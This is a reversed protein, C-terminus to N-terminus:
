SAPDPHVWPRRYERKLLAAAAPNNRIETRAADWEVKTGSEYAIMGLQVAATSTAADILTCGPQNKRRVAELFEGVHRTQQDDAKITAPTETRSAGKATPIVVMRSDSVFVTERECYFFIGNSTEPSWEASGWLRHRWVVPCQEFEFAATLTDPTTIRGKLQYIGGSAQISRPAGEGLITRTADILHIGWDVLHGNGYQKELRWTRHAINPSYPLRPAPGCWFDWDLTAPPAQPTNDLVQAQYHIQVDAQVVRGPKGSRLYDAANRFADSQRRQFGAQVTTGASKWARIMAGAERIDYAVPKELYVALGRRCAEIFPLAHWHPPTAIIVGDLGPMSLCERYDKFTRPRSGQLKEVEAACQELHSSDVDCLAACEVGGARYAANLDVMGYWGCGIVGLKLKRDLAPARRVAAGAVPAAAAIVFQRRNIPRV